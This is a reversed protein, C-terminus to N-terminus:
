AVDPAVAASPTSPSSRADPRITDILHNGVGRLAGMVPSDPFGDLVAAAEKAYLLAVDQAAAVVGNSRILSRARDATDRDIPGGAIRGPRRRTPIPSLGSSRCHTSVRSWITAPPSALQEDTAVVDLIDDVIQFVM